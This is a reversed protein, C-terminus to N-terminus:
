VHWVFHYDVSRVRFLSPHHDKSTVADFLEVEFRCVFPRQATVYVQGLDGADLRRQLGRKYIVAAISVAKKGKRFNMWIIILNRDGIALRQKLFLCLGLALIVFLRIAFPSATAM